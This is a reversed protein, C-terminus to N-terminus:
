AALATRAAAFTGKVFSAPRVVELGLREEIVITIMNRIANDRDQDYFRVNLQKRDLITAGNRFDGVFFSGQAIADTELVPLRWINSVEGNGVGGVYLYGGALTNPTLELEALDMPNLMIGSAQYRGKRIQAMAVRIITPITANAYTGFGTPKAFASALLNLGTLNTGTGDGYLLQQDEVLRLDEAGRQTVYATIYPVDEVLEESLRLHAAIKRVTATELTLDYDIQPKLAGEAVTTPSGEGGNERVYTVSPSATPRSNMFDRVHNFYAQREIIGPRRAPEIIGAALNGASIMMDGVAKQDFALEFTKKNKLSDANEKVGKELLSAFSESKTHAEGQAKKMATELEDMHKQSTKQYEDLLNKLETKTEQAVKKGDELAANKTQENGKNIREDIEGKLRDLQAKIEEGTFFVISAAKHLLNQIPNQSGPLAFAFQLSNNTGSQSVIFLASLIAFVFLLKEM